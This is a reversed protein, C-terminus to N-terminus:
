KYDKLGQIRKFLQISDRPDAIPRARIVDKRTRRKVIERWEVICAVIIILLFVGMEGAFEQGPTM